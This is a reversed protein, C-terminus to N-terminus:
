GQVATQTALPFLAMFGVRLSLRRENRAVTAPVTAAAPAMVMAAVSAAWAWDPQVSLSLPGFESEGPL